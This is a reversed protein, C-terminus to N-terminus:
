ELSRVRAYRAGELDVYAGLYMGVVAGDVAAVVLAGSFGNSYVGEFTWEDDYAYLKHFGFFKVSAELSPLAVVYVYEGDDPKRVVVPDDFDGELLVRLVDCDAEPDGNSDCLWRLRDSEACSDLVHQATYAYKGLVWGNGVIASVGQRVQKVPKAAQDFWGKLLRVKEPGSVLAYAAEREREAYRGGTVGCRGGHRTRGDIATFYGVASALGLLRATSRAQNEYRELETEKDGLFFRRTRSVKESDRGASAQLMRIVAANHARLFSLFYEQQKTQLQEASETGLKAFDSKGSLINAVRGMDRGRVVPEAKWLDYLELNLPMLQRRWERVPDVKVLDPTDRDSDSLGTPSRVQTRRWDEVIAAKQKLVEQVPPPEVIERRSSYEPLTDYRSQFVPPTPVPVPVPVPSPEVRQVERPYEIQEPEEYVPSVGLKENVRTLMPALDLGATTVVSMKSATRGVGEGVSSASSRRRPTPPKRFVTVSKGGYVSFGADGVMKAYSGNAWTDWVHYMAIGWDSPHEMPARYVMESGEKTLVPVTHEEWGDVGDGIDEQSDGVIVGCPTIKSFGQSFGRFFGDDSLYPCVLAPPFPIVLLTAIVERSMGGFVDGFMSVTKSRVGLGFLRTWLYVYCQVDLDEATVPQSCEVDAYYANGHKSMRGVRGSRQVRESRTVTMRKLEVTLKDFDTRIRTTYGLDIVTEIDFTYSTQLVSTAILVRPGGLKVFTTAEALDRTAAAYGHVFTPIDNECYYSRWLEAEADDAVFLMTSNQIRGYHAPSEKTTMNPVSVLVRPSVCHVARRTSSEASIDTAATASAYLVKVGDFKGVQILLPFVAYPPTYEHSEDLIICDVNLKVLMKPNAAYLALFDGASAFFVCPAKAPRRLSQEDLGLVPCVGGYMEVAVSAVYACTCRAQRPDPQLVVVVKKLTVAIALPVKTTKGASTGAMIQKVEGKMLSPYKEVVADVLATETLVWQKIEAPREAPISPWDASKSYPNCRVSYGLAGVTRVTTRLAAKYCEIEEKAM